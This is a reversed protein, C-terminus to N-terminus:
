INYHNYYSINIQNVLLSPRRGRVAYRLPEKSAGRRGRGAPTLHDMVPSVQLNPSSAFLLPLSSSSFFFPLLLPSSSVNM